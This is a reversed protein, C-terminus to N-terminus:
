FEGSALVGGTEKGVWPVARIQGSSTHNASRPAVLWLIAGTSLLAAGGIVLGTAINGATVANERDAKGQGSCTNVVCGDAYSARNHPIAYGWWAYSAGGVAALGLVGVTVSMAKLPGASETRAQPATDLPPPPSKAPAEAVFPEAQVADALRPVTVTLEQGEASTDVQTSWPQKGPALAQITHSGVNVPLPVGLSAAQLSIDGDVIVKLDPPPSPANIVLKPVRHDVRDFDVKVADLRRDNSSQAAYVARQWAAWANALLGRGEECQGLSALTGVKADLEASQALLACAREYDHAKLRARGETFLRQAVAAKDQAEADSALAVFAM